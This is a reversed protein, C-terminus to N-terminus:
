ILLCLGWLFFFSYFVDEWCFLQWKQYLIYTELCASILTHAQLNKSGCCLVVM